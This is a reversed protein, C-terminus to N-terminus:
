KNLLVSAGTEASLHGVFVIRQHRGEKEREQGVVIQLTRETESVPVDSTDFSHKQTAPKHSSDDSPFTDRRKLPHQPPNASPVHEQSLRVDLVRQLVRSCDTTNWLRSGHAATWLPRKSPNLRLATDGCPSWTWLDTKMM